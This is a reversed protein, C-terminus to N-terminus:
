SNWRKLHQFATSGIGPVKGISFPPGNLIVEQFLNLFKFSGFRSSGFLEIGSPHLHAAMLAKIPIKNSSTNGVM